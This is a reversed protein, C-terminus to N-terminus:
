IIKKHYIDYWGLGFQTWFLIGIWFIIFGAIGLDITAKGITLDSTTLFDLLFLILAVFFSVVSAVSFGQCDIGSEFFDIKEVLDVMKERNQKRDKHSSGRKKLNARISKIMKEIEPLVKSWQKRAVTQQKKKFEGKNVHVALLVSISLFGLTVAILTPYFNILHNLNNLCYVLSSIILVLIILRILSNYNIKM